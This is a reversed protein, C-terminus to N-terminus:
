FNLLNTAAKEQRMWSKLNRVADNIEAIIFGIETVWSEEPNKKLDTHLADYLEQEHALIATKFKQLQIKRFDYARTKGTKYFRRMSQLLSNDETLTKPIEIQDATLMKIM